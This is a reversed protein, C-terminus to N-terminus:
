SAFRGTEFVGAPDFAARVRTSLAALAAPEPHLAPVEARINDPADALTAHGGAREALQRIAESSTEVPTRAWCLGGAWDLLAVGDLGTIGSVLSAAHSPPANIRWLLPRGAASLAAGRIAAWCASAEGEGLVDIRGADGLMRKLLKERADVSPGFGEIRIATLTSAPDHSAAAVEAQSGMARTMVDLAAATSLGRLVLTRAIPPRPIVKLTLETMAALRGWSGAMLKPLDYGTVNKVVKGGGKFAEGRGNVASFGLLHDRVGGASIRRSGAFGACVVGGITSRGTEGGLVVALDYPEFALMQNHDGLLTELDALPVGSEVTLVLEAPDYDIVRNFGAMSLTEAQRRPNGFRRKSGGSVIELKGGSAAAGAVADRVDAADRPASMAM